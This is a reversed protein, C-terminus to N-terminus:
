TINNVIYAYFNSSYKIAFHPSGYAEMVLGVCTIDYHVRQNSFFVTVNLRRVKPIHHKTAQYITMYCCTDVNLLFM